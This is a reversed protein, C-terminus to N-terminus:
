EVVKGGDSEYDPWEALDETVGLEALQQEQEPDIDKLAEKLSPKNNIDDM